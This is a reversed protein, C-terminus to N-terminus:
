GDAQYYDEIPDNRRSSINANPLVTNFASDGDNRRSCEERDSRSWIEMLNDYFQSHESHDGFSNPSSLPSVGIPLYM